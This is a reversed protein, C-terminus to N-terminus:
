WSNWQTHLSALQKHGLSAKKKHEALSIHLYLLSDRTPKAVVGELRLAGVWQCASSWGASHGRVWTSTVDRLESSTSSLDTKWVCGPGWEASFYGSFVVSQAPVRCWCQWACPRNVSCAWLSCPCFTQTHKLSRSLCASRSLPHTPPHPPIWNNEIIFFAVDFTSSRCSEVATHCIFDPRSGHPMNAHMVKILKIVSIKIQPLSLCFLLSSLSWVSTAEKKLSSPTQSLSWQHLVSVRDSHPGRRWERLSMSPSVRDPSQPLTM